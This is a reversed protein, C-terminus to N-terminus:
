FLSRILFLFGTILFVVGAPAGIVTLVLILGAVMFVLGLLGAALRGTLRLLLSFVDWLAVFPWFIWLTRKEQM